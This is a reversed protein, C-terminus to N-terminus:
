ASLFVHDLKTSERITTLYEMIGNRKTLRRWENGTRGFYGRVVMRHLKKYDM